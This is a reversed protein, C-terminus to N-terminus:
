ELVLYRILKNGRIEKLLHNHRLVSLTSRMAPDVMVGSLNKVDEEVFFSGGKTEATEAEKFEHYYKIKSMPVKSLPLSAIKYKEDLVLQIKEVLSIFKQYTMRGRMYTPTKDFEKESLLGIRTPQKATKHSKKIPPLTARETTNPTEHKKTTIKEAPIAPLHDLAHRYTRNEEQVSQLLEGIESTHAHLEDLRKNFENYMEEHVNLAEDLKKLDTDFEPTSKCSLISVSDVLLEMKATLNYVLDELSLTQLDVEHTPSAMWYKTLSFRKILTNTFYVSISM